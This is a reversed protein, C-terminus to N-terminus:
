NIILSEGFDTIVLYKKNEDYYRKQKIFDILKDKTLCWQEYAGYTYDFRAPRFWDVMKFDVIHGGNFCFNNPYHRPLEFVRCFNNEHTIEPM